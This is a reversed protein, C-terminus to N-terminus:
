KRQNVRNMAQQAGLSVYERVAQVGASILDGVLAEEEPPFAQLVFDAIEGKFNPGPRGIGLRLRAYDKSSMEQSISRLGNHGAEGGGVKLRIRGFPLDVEDHLVLIDSIPIKYFTAAARVSQGSRNMYTQPKLLLLRQRDLDISCTEGHFRTQFVSSPELRVLEDIVRFGVNHRTKEYRSTPNGLGVVLFM